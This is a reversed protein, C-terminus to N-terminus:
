NEHLKSVSRSVAEQPAEESSDSAVSGSQVRSKELWGDARKQWRQAAGPCGRQAFMRALYVCRVADIATRVDDDLDM